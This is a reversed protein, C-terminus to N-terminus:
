ENIQQFLTDMGKILENQKSYITILQEQHHDFEKYAENIYSAQNNVLEIVDDLEINRMRSQLKTILLQLQTTLKSCIPLKM